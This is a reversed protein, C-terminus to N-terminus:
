RRGRTQNQNEYRRAEAGSESRPKQLPRDKSRHLESDRPRLFLDLADQLNELAETL